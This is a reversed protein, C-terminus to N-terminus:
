ILREETGSAEDVEAVRGFPEVPWPLTLESIELDGPAAARLADIFLRNRVFLDGAALVRTTM